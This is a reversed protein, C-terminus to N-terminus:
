SDSVADRRKGSAVVAVERERLEACLEGVILDPPAPVHPPQDGPVALHEGDAM